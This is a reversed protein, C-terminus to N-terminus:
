SRDRTDLHSESRHIQSRRMLGSWWRQKYLTVIRPTFTTYLEIFFVTNEVRITRVEVCDCVCARKRVCVCGCSRGGACVYVCLVCMYVIGCGRM